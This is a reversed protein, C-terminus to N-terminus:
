VWYSTYVQATNKSLLVLKKTFNLHIHKQCNNQSLKINNLVCTVLDTPLQENEKLLAWENIIFLSEGAIVPFRAQWSFNVISFFYKM